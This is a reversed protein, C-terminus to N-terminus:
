FNGGGSFINNNGFYKLSLNSQSNRNINNSVSTFGSSKTDPNTLRGVNIQANAGQDPMDSEGQGTLYGDAIQAVGKVVNLFGETKQVQTEMNVNQKANYLDLNINMLQQNKEQFLSINNNTQNDNLSNISTYFENNLQAMATTRFSSGQIDVDGVNVSAINIDSQATDKQNLIDSLSNAYQNMQKSYNEAYSKEVQKKNFNAKTELLKKKERGIDGASVMQGLGSLINLTGSVSGSILGM